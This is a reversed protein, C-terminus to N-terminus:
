KNQNGQIQGIFVYKDFIFFTCAYINVNYGKQPFTVGCYILCVANLHGLLTLSPM